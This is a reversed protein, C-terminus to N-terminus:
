ILMLPTCHTHHPVPHLSPWLMAMWPSGLETAMTSVSGSRVPIFPLRRHSVWNILWPTLCPWSSVLPALFQIPLRHARYIETTSSSSRRHLSHSLGGPFLLYPRRLRHPQELAVCCAHRADLPTNVGMSITTMPPLWRHLLYGLLKRVDTIGGGYGFEITWWSKDWIKVHLCEFM